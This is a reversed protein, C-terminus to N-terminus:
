ESIWVQTIKEVARFLVTNTHIKGSLKKWSELAVTSNRKGSESFLCFLQVVPRRKRTKANVCTRCERTDSADSHRNKILLFMKLPPRGFCFCGFGGDSCRRRRRTGILRAAPRKREAPVKISLQNCWKSFSGVDRQEVADRPLTRWCVCASCM